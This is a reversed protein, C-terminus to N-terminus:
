KGMKGLLSYWVNGKLELPRMARNKKDNRSMSIWDGRNKANFYITDPDILFNSNLLRSALENANNNQFNNSITLRSYFSDPISSNGALLIELGVRVAHICKHRFGKQWLTGPQELLAANKVFFQKMREVENVSFIEPRWLTNIQAFSSQYLCFLSFVYIPRVM